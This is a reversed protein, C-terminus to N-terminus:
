RAIISEEVIGDYIGLLQQPLTYHIEIVGNQNSFVMKNQNKFTVEIFYEGEIEYIATIGGDAWSHGMKYPRELLTIPEKNDVYFVNENTEFEDYKLRNENTIENVIQIKNETLNYVRYFLVGSSYSGNAVILNGQKLNPLFIVEEGFDGFESTINYNDISVVIDEELLNLNNVIPANASITDTDGHEPPQQNNKTMFFAQECGTLIFFSLVLCWNIKNIPLIRQM